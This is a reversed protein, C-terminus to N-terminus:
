VSRDLLRSQAGTRYLVAFDAFSRQANPVDGDVRGSDLSFYSTGGVLQEIQHVVYEAEAKDTPASHVDLKVQSAFGSLTEAAQLVRADPALGGGAGQRNIVQVAADLILQTSRYNRSLRM